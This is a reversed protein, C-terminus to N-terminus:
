GGEGARGRICRRRVKGAAGYKQHKKLGAAAARAARSKEPHQWAWEFQLATVQTPFGHVVLAMEWPRGSGSPPSHAPTSNPPARLCTSVSAAKPTIRPPWAGAARARGRMRGDRLVCRKTRWAGSVIEGNHQRLRRMPNVTFRAPPRPLRPERRPERRQRPQPAQEDGAATSAACRTAPAARPPRRAPQM